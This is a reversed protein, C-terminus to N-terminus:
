GNREKELIQQWRESNRSPCGNVAWIELQRVSILVKSNLRIPEPTRGTANLQKWLTLGCGCISAATKSDVLVPKIKVPEAAM